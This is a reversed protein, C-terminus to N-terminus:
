ATRVFLAVDGSANIFGLCMWTGALTGGTHTGAANSPTLDAAPLTAGFACAATAKAMAYTGLAGATPAPIIAVGSLLSVIQVLLKNTQNGILQDTGASGSM